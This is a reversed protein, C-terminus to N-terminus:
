FRQPSNKYSAKPDIWITNESSFTAQTLWSTDGTTEISLAAINSLSTEASSILSVIKLMFVLLDGPVSTIRNIKELSWPINHPCIHHYSNFTKKSVPISRFSTFAVIKVKTGFFGFTVTIPSKLGIAQQLTTYLHMVLIREFLISGITSEITLLVWDAKMGPLFM